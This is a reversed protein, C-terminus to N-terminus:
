LLDALHLQDVARVFRTNMNDVLAYQREDSFDMGRSAVIPYVLCFLAADRYRDWLNTTDAEPVGAAILADLWRNFLATEHTAAVDPALSQTVFYALDYSASGRGTLQFDLLVVNGEDDFLINDARYDGHTITNPAGSLRELASPMWDVWGPGVAAIVPDVDMANNVKEWGEAFVMPLVAPYVPDSLCVVDGRDVPADAKRWFAAHWAALEDVARQADDINMGENQDVMRMSGMDEMVQVFQSTELDVAGHYGAPVRIPSQHALNEFFRVERIYMRLVTSTFVAEEALAPLKVVVSDLDGGELTSRYVASSVGVGEGIQEHSVGTIPQGMAAAMWSADIDAISSPITPEGM